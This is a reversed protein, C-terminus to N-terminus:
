SQKKYSWVAWTGMGITMGALVLLQPLIGTFDTGKIFVARMGEIFYRAPNIRTIAQAWDPMSHIPTFLGSLLMMVVVCFWMVFMAQQLANSYNSIILGISSFVGAFLLALLYLWIINGVPTINYVLWSLIFCLTLALIAIIWYPILKSLIFHIKSVPTVNIQEITGAEKEGVINLAPLFGCLMIMLMVMLAPIMNVKYSEHTNYLRKIAIPSNDSVAPQINAQASAVINSLYGSGLSGKTGNVANAAILVQTKRGSVIDREYHYPIEMVIDVRGEEIAELGETYSDVMGKFIFYNSAQIKQVLRQSTPSHDNDVVLVEVNRVEMNTIWPVVCMVMIPLMLILRPVFANRRIQIFEKEILYRLIM